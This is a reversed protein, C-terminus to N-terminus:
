GLSKQAAEAVGTIVMSGTVSSNVMSARAVTGVIKMPINQCSVTCTAARVSATLSILPSSTTRTRSTLPWARLFMADVTRADHLVVQTRTRVIVSWENEIAFPLLPARVALRLPRMELLPPEVAGDELMATTGRPLGTRVVGLWGCFWSVIM